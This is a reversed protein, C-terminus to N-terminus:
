EPDSTEAEVAARTLPGYVGSEEDIDRAQQFRTVASETAPGYTGNAPAVLLQMQRLRLQLETVQEGSDGRRLTGAASAAASSPRDSTTSRPTAPTTPRQSSRSARESKRETPTPSASTAPDTVQATQAPGAEAGPEGGGSFFGGAVGVTVAVVAAAGALLGYRWGKGAAGSGDSRSLETPEVDVEAPLEAPVPGRPPLASPRDFLQLVEQTPQTDAADPPAVHGFVPDTTPPEATSPEAM